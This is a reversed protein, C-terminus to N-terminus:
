DLGSRSLFDELASLREVLRVDADEEEDGTLGGNARCRRRTVASSRMSSTLLATSILGSGAPGLRRRRPRPAHSFDLLRPRKQHAMCLVRGGRERPEEFITELSNNSPSRYNQNTYIEELSFEKKKLRKPRPLGMPTLEADRKPMSKRIPIESVRKIRVKLDLDLTVQGTKRPGTKRQHEAATPAPSQSSATSSAAGDALSGHAGPRKLRRSCRSLSRVSSCKPALPKGYSHDNGLGPPATRDRLPREPPWQGATALLCLRATEIAVPSLHVLAHLPRLRLGTTMSVHPSNIRLATLSRGQPSRLSFFCCGSQDTPSGSWFLCSIPTGSQSTSPTSTESQGPPPSSTESQCPLPASYSVSHSCLIDQSQDSQATPDTPCTQCLPYDGVFLVNHTAGNPWSRGPVRSSVSKDLCHSLPLRSQGCPLLMNSSQHLPPISCQSQVITANSTVGSATPCSNPIDRCVRRKKFGKLEKRQGSSGGGKEGSMPKSGGGATKKLQFHGGNLSWRRKGKAPVEGELATSKLEEGMTSSGARQTTVAGTALPSRCVLISPCGVALHPRGTAISPTGTTLSPLRPALLPVETAIPSKCNLHSPTVTALSPTRTSLPLPSTMHSPMGMSLTQTGTALSLARTLHSPAGTALSPTVTAPPLISTLNSPGGTTLCPTATERRTRCTLRSPTPKLLPSVCTRTSSVPATTETCPAAGKTRNKRAMGGSMAGGEDLMIGGRQMVLLPLHLWLRELGAEVAALRLCLPALAEKLLSLPLLQQEESLGPRRDQLPPRTSNPPTVGLNNEHQQSVDDCHHRSDNDAHHGVNNDRHHGVDIDRHHGVDNQHHHGVVDLHRGVCDQRQHIVEERVYLHHSAEDHDRQTINHDRVLWPAGLDWGRGPSSLPPAPLPPAGDMQSTQPTLMVSVRNRGPKVSVDM